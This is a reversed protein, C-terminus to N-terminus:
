KTSEVITPKSTEVKPRQTVPKRFTDDEQNMLEFLDDIERERKRAKLGEIGTLPKDDEDDKQRGNKESM